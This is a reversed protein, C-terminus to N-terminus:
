VHYKKPLSSQFASLWFNRVFFNFFQCNANIQLNKVNKQWNKRIFKILNIIFNKAQQNPLKTKPIKTYKRIELIHPKIKNVM